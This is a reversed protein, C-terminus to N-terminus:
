PNGGFLRSLWSTTPSTGAVKVYRGQILQPQAPPAPRLLSQTAKSGSSALIVAGLAAAAGTITLFQRRSLERGGKAREEPM